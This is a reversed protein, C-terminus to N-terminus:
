LPSESIRVLIRDPCPNVACDVERHVGSHGDVKDYKRPVIVFLPQCSLRPSILENHEPLNERLVKNTAIRISEEELEHILRLFLVGIPPNAQLAGRHLRNTVNIRVVSDDRGACM